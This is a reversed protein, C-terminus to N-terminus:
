RVDNAARVIMRQFNGFFIRIKATHKIILLTEYNISLLINKYQM